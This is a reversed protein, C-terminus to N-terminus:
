LVDVTTFSYVESEVAVGQGDVALVKWYYTQGPALDTAVYYQDTLGSVVQTQVGPIIVGPDSGGGPSIPGADGAGGGGCATILCASLLGAALAPYWAIKRALSFLLSLVVFALFVALGGPPLHNGPSMVVGSAAVEAETGFVLTYTTASDSKEHYWDFTVIAPLDRSGQDPAVLDPRPRNAVVNSYASEYGSADYATVTFYYIRGDDPLDVGLSSDPGVDIPSAGQSAEVGLFPPQPSGSQYYLRYGALNSDLNPDWELDVTQALAPVGFSLMGLIVFMVKIFCNMEAEKVVQLWKVFFCGILYVSPRQL